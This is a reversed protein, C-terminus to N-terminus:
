PGGDGRKYAHLLAIVEGPTGTSLVRTIEARRASGQRQRWAEFQASAVAARADPHATAVQPHAVGQLQAPVPWSLDHTGPSVAPSALAPPSSVPAPPAQAAPESPALLQVLAIVAAAAIAVLVEPQLGRLHGLRSRQPLAAAADRAAPPEPAPVPACAKWASPGVPARAHTARAQGSAPAPAAAAPQAPATAGASRAAAAADAPAGEHPTRAHASRMPAPAPFAPAPPMQSAASLARQRGQRAEEERIWDDHERRSQPESLVAYSESLVQMAHTAGATDAWRDPHCKQVLAKYAARIVEPPADRAVKLNDYHTHVTFQKAPM